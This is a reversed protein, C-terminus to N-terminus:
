LKWTIKHMDPSSIGPMSSLPILVRGCPLTTCFVFYIQRQSGFLDGIPVARFVTNEPERAGTGDRCRRERLRGPMWHLQSDRILSFGRPLQKCRPKVTWLLFAHRQWTARYERGLAALRIGRISRHRFTARQRVM